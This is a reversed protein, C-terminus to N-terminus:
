TSEENAHEKLKRKARAVKRIAAKLEPPYRHITNRKANEARTILELRELTINEHRPGADKFVVISGEPVPGHTEEWVIQHVSKWRRHIPMDDNVKRQLIGHKTIREFGIPKHLAQARGAMEGPKFQTQTSRGGAQWGKKGTNWPKQKPKFEGALGRREGPKITGSHPGALYAASKKLGLRDARCYIRSATSDFHAMLAPMPTDPYLRRLDADEEPTWHRRKM